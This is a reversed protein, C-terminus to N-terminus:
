LDLPVKKQNGGYVSGLKCWWLQLLGRRPSLLWAVGFIAIGVVVMCAPINSNLVLSLHVGLVAYLAALPVSLVLLVPLRDSVLACTAAPFILMAVVLIVGVAEFAFVAVVSLVAMLGYHFVNVSIGLSAALSPDFSTVLLEKYFLIVLISVMLAVIAMALIPLPVQIKNGLNVTEALPLYAIEGYLVCEADIHVDSAFLNIMLVGIAFCVTFVIGLAADVKIRSQKHIFEILLTAALGALIAGVLMAPIALTSTLMFALVIGPLLSHSIADGMLAMRRVVLFNGVLACALSVCFGMLMIWGFHKFNTSWPALIMQEFDFPPILQSAISM